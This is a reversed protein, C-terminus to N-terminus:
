PCGARMARLGEGSVLECNADDIHQPCPCGACLAGLGKGSVMQCNPDDCPYGACLAGLGKGSVLQCNAGDIHQLSPCGPCLAGLTSDANLTLELQGSNKGQGRLAEGM